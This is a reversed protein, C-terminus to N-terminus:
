GDTLYYKLTIQMISLIWFNFVGVLFILIGAYKSLKDSKEPNMKKDSYSKFLFLLLVFLWGLLRSYTTYDSPLESGTIKDYYKINLYIIWALLFLVFLMPLAQSIINKFFQFNSLKM